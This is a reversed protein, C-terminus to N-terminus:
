RDGGKVSERLIARRKVPHLIGTATRERKRMPLTEQANEPQGDRNNRREAQVERTPDNHKAPVPFRFSAQPTENQGDRNDKDSQIERSPNTQRAPAPLQHSAHPTEGQGDRNNRREAQVERTPTTLGAPAPLMQSTPTNAGHIIITPTIEKIENTNNMQKRVTTTNETRRITEPQICLCQLM